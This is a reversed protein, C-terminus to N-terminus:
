KESVECVIRFGDLGGHNGEASPFSYGDARLLEGPHSWSGGKLVRADGCYESVNGHMDYIGWDNPPYSGVAAPRGLPAVKPVDGVPENSNFNAQKGSLTKGTHYPVGEQGALCAFDWEAQTPLRYKRGAKKEEPLESLKVCFEKAEEWTMNEAPFRETKLGVVNAARAGSACHESPNKGMVREYEAQTVEFVGLYFPRTAQGAPIWALRTGLSNVIEPPPLRWLRLGAKDATAAHRGDPAVAVAYAQDMGDLRCLEKGSDADWLRLSGDLSVSVLRRGDPAFALWRVAGSHGKCPALERGAKLDLVAVDYDPPSEKRFGSAFAVLRGDASATLLSVSVRPQQPPAALPAAKTRASIDWLHAERDNLGGSVLRKGDPLFAFDRVSLPGFSCLAAGQDLDWLTMGADTVGAKETTVLLRGSPSVALRRSSRKLGLSRLEKGSAADWVRVTLDLGSSVLRDGAPTVALGYVPRTHGKFELV